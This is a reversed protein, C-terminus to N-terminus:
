DALFRASAEKLAASITHETNPVVQFRVNCNWNNKIAMEQVANYWNQARERRGSGQLKLLNYQRYTERFDSQNTDNEGVIILLDTGCLAQLKPEVGKPLSASRVGIPYPLKPDPWMYWGASGAVARAVRDAHFACFRHVFQGGGSFGFLLIASDLSIESLETRVSDVLDLLRLDARLGFLNLRQYDNRFRKEDFHPALVIWGQIEALDKWREATRKVTSRGEDTDLRGSYGHIVVLIQSDKASEMSKKPVYVYYIQGDDFVCENLGLNLQPHTVTVISSESQCSLCVFQSVLVLIMFAQRM